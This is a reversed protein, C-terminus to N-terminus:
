RPVAGATVFNVLHFLVEEMESQSKLYFRAHSDEQGIKVTLLRNNTYRFVDEDTQDDGFYLGFSFKEKWMMHDLAKGKDVSNAPLVNIVAKGRTIRSQPLRQIFFEIAGEAVKLDSAQRYHFSLSFEKDEVTVGLKQMVPLIEAVTKMWRQVQERMYQLDAETQTGEAGHNGIIYRPKIPLLREVDSVKRGTLVAVPTLENLRVFLAATSKNMVAKEPDSVIPALTGDYDFAFLTRAM